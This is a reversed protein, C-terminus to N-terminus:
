RCGWSVVAVGIGCDRGLVMVDVAVVWGGGFVM